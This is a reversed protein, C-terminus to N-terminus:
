DLTFVLDGVDFRLQEGASITVSPSLSGRDLINGGTPADATFIYNQQPVGSAPAAFQVVTGNSVQNASYLWAFTGNAVGVRAYNIDSPESVGTGDENIVTASLGIYIVAPPTWAQNGYLRQLILKEQFDTYSM